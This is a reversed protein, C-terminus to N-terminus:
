SVTFSPKSFNNTKIHLHGTPCNRFKRFSANSALPLAIEADCQRALALVGGIHDSHDHTCVVLAIDEHNRQMVESLYGLVYKEGGLHVDIVFLSNNDDVIFSNAYRGKVTHIEM